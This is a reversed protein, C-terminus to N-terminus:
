EDWDIEVNALEGDEDVLAEERSVPSTCDSCIELWPRKEDVWFMRDKRFPTSSCTGDETADCVACRAM